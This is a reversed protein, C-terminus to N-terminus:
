VVSPCTILCVVLVILLNLFYSSKFTPSSSSPICYGKYNPIPADSLKLGRKFPVSFKPDMKTYLTDITGQINSSNFIIKQSPSKMDSSQLYWLDGTWTLNFEDPAIPVLDAEGLMGLKMQLIGSTDNKSITINGFALHGYVGVFEGLPRSSDNKYVLNETKEQNGNKKPQDGDYPDGDIDPYKCGATQNLWRPLGLLVDSVFYMIAELGKASQSTPGNYNAYVGINFEPYMWIHSAYTSIGGSHWVKKYGRYIASLWAMDYSLSVDSVPFNPLTKDRHIAPEPMQGTYTEGLLRMDALTQNHISKGEMLHFRLWKAMDECTAAISGAPGLPHVVRTTKTSVRRLTGNVTVYPMAFRTLEEGQDVFFATDMGLPKFIRERVLDEWTKGNGDLKEAVYGALGYMYNNYQFKTRFEYKPEMFRLRGIIDERTVDQPFGTLLPTFYAPVGLKHALLDRINAEGTRLDDSLHFSGGLIDRIRTDWGMGEREGLLMALLTATFAKTLSGICFRTSDTAREGKEVDAYGYARAHLIKDKKVIALSLGPINRCKIMGNIFSDIEGIESSTLSSVLGPGFSGIAVVCLLKFTLHEM